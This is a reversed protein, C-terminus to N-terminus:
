NLSFHALTLPHKGSPNMTVVLLVCYDKAVTLLEAGRTVSVNLQAKRAETSGAAELIGLNSAGHEIQGEHFRFTALFSKM